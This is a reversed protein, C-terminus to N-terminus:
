SIRIPLDLKHHAIKMVFKSTVAPLPVGAILWQYVGDFSQTDPVVVRLLYDSTSGLRLVEMVEPMAEVAAMFRNCWELTHDVAEIEVLV